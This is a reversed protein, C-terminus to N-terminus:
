YWKNYLQKLKLFLEKIISKITVRDTYDEKKCFELGYKILGIATSFRPNKIIDDPGNIDRPYAIMVNQQFVEQALEQINKLQSGGGTIVIGYPTNYTLGATNIERKVEDFIEIMRSQIIEALEYENIIVERNDINLIITQNEEITEKKASGYDHKLIELEKDELCEGLKQQIGLAIDKTIINGAMPIAGSHQVGNNKYIIIDTTGGGIDILVTGLNKQQKNLVAFSSALPELVFDYIHINSSLCNKLNNESNKNVTVLHANLELRKGHLGKPNQINTRDDVKYDQNLVHLIKRESPINISRTSERVKVIDDDNIESGNNENVIVVGSYNMGHIHDGTIGIFASEIKRNSQKEAQKIANDLSERTKSIDVVEGRDLGYSPSIGHGLITTKKGDNEAIIVAIKTTGVDIGTIINQRSEILKELGEVLKQRIPDQLIEDRKQKSM